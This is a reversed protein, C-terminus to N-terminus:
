AEVLKRENMTMELQWCEVYRRYLHREVREATRFPFSVGPWAGYQSKNWMDNAAIDLCFEELVSYSRTTSFRYGIITLSQLHSRMPPVLRYCQRTLNSVFHQFLGRAMKPYCEDGTSLYM